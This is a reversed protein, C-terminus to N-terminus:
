KTAPKDDKWGGEYRINGDQDFLTGYGNRKDGKWEGSYREGSPWYYTGEGERKDDNYEGVYKEGDVWEYTGKGHRMNNKWDGKYISGTQWIGVGGGNAKGNSVEGLYHILKGNANKFSIVQVNQNKKQDSSKQALESNLQRVKDNLKEIESKFVEETSDIQAELFSIQIKNKQLILEYPNVDDNNGDMSYILDELQKIRSAVFDKYSEDVNELLSTYVSIAGAYDGHGIILDDAEIFEVLFDRESTLNVVETQLSQINNSTSSSKNYLWFSFGLSLLALLLTGYFLSKFSSSNSNKSM